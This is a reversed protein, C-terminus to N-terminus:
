VTFSRPRARHADYYRIITECTNLDISVTAQHPHGVLVAGAQRRFHRPHHLGGSRPTPTAFSWSAFCGSWWRSKSRRPSKTWPTTTATSTGATKPRSWWPSTTKGGALAGVYYVQPIGPAFFQIARAALYADDNSKLASYYTCNVQYTDLNGYDPGSYVKRTTAGEGFLHELVRNIEDDSMLEKM